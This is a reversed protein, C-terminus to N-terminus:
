SRGKEPWTIEHEEKADDKFVQPFYQWPTLVGGRSAIILAELADIEAQAIGAGALIDAIGDLVAARSRERLWRFFFEMM